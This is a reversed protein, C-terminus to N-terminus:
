YDGTIDNKYDNMRVVRHKRKPKDFEIQDLRFSRFGQTHNTFTLSVSGNSSTSAYKFVMRAHKRNTHGPPLYKFGYEKGPELRM